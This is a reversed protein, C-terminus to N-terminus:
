LDEIATTIITSVDIENSIHQITNCTAIKAVGLGKLHDYADNAFIAHVGICVVQQMGSSHLHKVTEVMTAATSIIDDVLVATHSQYKETHPFSVEVLEDGHRQKQLIEYPAGAQGAVQKVWQESEEDPGIIVPQEVTRKVWDAITDAAHLVKYPITYIEDLSKHRHLHPDITILWDFQASIFKAFVNSTIAEGQNFRKDQRMYGLYPSILGIKNAGLERAVDNFFMLSMIKSDPHDLGCVVIVDKGAVESDLRVYSEGDPFHRVELDGYLCGYQQQIANALNEYGPFAFIISM